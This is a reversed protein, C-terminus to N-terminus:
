VRQGASAIACEESEGPYVCRVSAGEVQSYVNNGTIEIKALRAPEMRSLAGIDLYYGSWSLLLISFL